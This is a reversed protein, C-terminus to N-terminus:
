PDVVEVEPLAVGDVGFEGLAAAVTWAPYDSRTSSM